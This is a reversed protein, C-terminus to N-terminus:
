RISYGVSSPPAALRAGCRQARDKMKRETLFRSHSDHIYSRGDPLKVPMLDEPSLLARLQALKESIYADHKFEETAQISAVCGARTAPFGYNKIISMQIDECHRQRATVLAMLELGQKELVIGTSDAHFDAKRAAIGTNTVDLNRHSPLTPTLKRLTLVAIMEECMEICQTRTLRVPAPAAPLSSEQFSTPDVFGDLLFETIKPISHTVMSVHGQGEVVELEANFMREKLETARELPHMRDESGHVILTPTTIEEVAKTGEAFLAILQVMAGKGLDEACSMVSNKENRTYIQHILRYMPTMTKRFEPDERRKDAYKLMRDCREEVSLDNYSCCDKVWLYDNGFLVEGAPQLTGIHSPMPEWYGGQMVVLKKVRKPHLRTLLMAYVSGIGWGAVYVKEESNFCCDLLMMLDDVYTQLPVYDNVSIPTTEGQNRLDCTLVRFNRAFGKVQAKTMEKRLDSTVGPIFLLKPAEEPGELDFRMRIGRSEMFDAFPPEVVKSRSESLKRAANGGTPGLVEDDQFADVLDFM